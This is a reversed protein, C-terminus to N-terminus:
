NKFIHKNTFGEPPHSFSTHPFIRIKGMKSLTHLARVLHSFGCTFNVSKPATSQWFPKTSCAQMYTLRSKNTIGNGPTHTM